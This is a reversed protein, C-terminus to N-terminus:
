AHVMYKSFVEKEVMAFAEDIDYAEWTREFHAISEQIKKIEEDSCDKKLEEIVEQSLM